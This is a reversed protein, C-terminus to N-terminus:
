KWWRASPYVVANLWLCSFAGFPIEVFCRARMCLHVWMRTHVGASVWARACVGCVCVAQTGEMVMRLASGGQRKMQLTNSSSLTGCWCVRWQM